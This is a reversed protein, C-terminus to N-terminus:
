SILPHQVLVLQLAIYRTLPDINVRNLDLINTIIKVRITVVLDGQLLELDHELGEIIPVIEADDISLAADVVTLLIHEHSRDGRFQNFVPLLKLLEKIL